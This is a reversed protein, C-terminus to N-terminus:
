LRVALPQIASQTQSVHAEHLAAQLVSFPAHISPVTPFPQIASQTQSLHAEPLATQLVSYLAAWVQVRDARVDLAVFPILRESLLQAIMQGVRGFGAIIVHDRLEGTEKENPQLMQVGLRLPTM